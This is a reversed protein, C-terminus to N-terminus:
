RTLSFKMALGFDRTTTPYSSSSLLPTNTQRDYYASLTLMKSLTYDAAFSLKFASNGSSASSVGSAIDRTIAAQKRLSIDLRMNLDHNVGGKKTSSTNSTKSNNNSNSAQGSKKSGKAKKTKSGGGMGFLNFDSIKYGMGIVWDKSLSENLQVSTMSLNLNRTSRYELKVTMNNQLTVDMGILPSFQEQISVTPINYMSSPTMSGDTAVIYGLDGDLQTWSSYSSYSGISFVSKYSHNINVSKFRDALWPIKSLGGYRVTWNPLLRSLAPFIDLGGGGSTYAELFAPILVDGSYQGVTGKGGHADYRQQVRQRIEPILSCFRDFAASRYGSNANGMGEFASGITITTMNFSGSKTTPSGEYMFQVSRANNMTRSANLDIKLDRLPEVTAKLQLDETMSSTSPTAVADNMLLWGNDKAKDLYSDGNFGFAFDLGPSLVSGTRQGFADGINPMFGPLSMSRQNRYSFSVTRVSMLLRAVQQAPDYWWQKDLPEKPLVSLKLKLISDKQTSDQARLKTSIDKPLGVKINNEDKVKWRLKIQKGEPTRASVLLRKSKKNHQITLTSDPLLTIEKQFTNKNKPLEKKEKADNKKAKAADTKTADNKAADGPKESKEPKATTKKKDNKKAPAKKFRENVKKLFPSHNYLTELNMSGNINLSRNNSITNGLTTGDDLETGRVWSYTANYSADSNLWDFIPLKNLPLQYSAQFSQQYDLPTGLNRISQKVSDKWATYHEPYLDKNIPTYPEEIEAHTASQFNM